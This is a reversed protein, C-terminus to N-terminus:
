LSHLVTFCVEPHRLHLVSYGIDHNGSLYYVKIDSDRGREKLYFVHKFRNLSEEWRYLISMLSFMVLAFNYCFFSEKFNM